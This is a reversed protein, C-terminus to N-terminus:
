IKLHKGFTKRYETELEKWNGLFSFDDYHLGFSPEDCYDYVSILVPTEQKKSVPTDFLFAIVNEKVLNENSLMNIWWSEFCDDNKSNKDYNHFFWDKWEEKTKCSSLDPAVYKETYVMKTLESPHFIDEAIGEPYDKNVAPKDFRVRYFNEVIAPMSSTHEIVTGTKRDYMGCFKSNIKVRDGVQFM